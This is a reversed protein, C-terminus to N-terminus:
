ARAAPAGSSKTSSGGSHNRSSRVCSRSFMSVRSRAFSHEGEYSIDFIREVDLVFHDLLTERVLEAQLLLECCASWLDSIPVRAVAAGFHMELLASGVAANEELARGLEAPSPSTTARFAIINDSGVGADM